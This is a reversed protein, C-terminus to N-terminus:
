RVLSGAKGARWKVWEDYDFHLQIRRSSVGYHNVVGWVGRELGWTSNYM